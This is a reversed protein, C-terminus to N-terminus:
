DSLLDRGAKTIEWKYGYYGTTFDSQKLLGEEALIKLHRLIKARTVLPDTRHVVDMIYLSYPSVARQVAQLLLKRNM